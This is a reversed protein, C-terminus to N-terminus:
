LKRGLTIIGADDLAAAKRDVTEADLYDDDIEGNAVADDYWGEIQSTSVSRREPWIIQFRDPDNPYSLYNRM